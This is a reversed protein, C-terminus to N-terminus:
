SGAPVVPSTHTLVIGTVLLAISYKICMRQFEDVVVHMPDTDSVNHNPLAFMVCLLIAYLVFHIYKTDYRAGVLSCLGFSVATITQPELRIGMDLHNNPDSRMLSYSDVWWVMLMWLVSPVIAGNMRDERNLLATVILPWLLNMVARITLIMTTEDDLHFSDRIIFVTLVGLACTALLPFM